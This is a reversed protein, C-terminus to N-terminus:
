RMHGTGPVAAMPNISMGLAMRATQSVGSAFDAAARKVRRRHRYLGYTLLVAAAAGSALEWAPVDQLNFAKLADQVDCASM